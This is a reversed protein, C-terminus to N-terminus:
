AEKKPIPMLEFLRTVPVNTIQRAEDYSRGSRLIALATREASTLTQAQTM